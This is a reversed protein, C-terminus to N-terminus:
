ATNFTYKCDVILVTTGDKVWNKGCIHSWLQGSDAGAGGDIFNGFETFTGNVETETYFATLYAINSASTGSATDNRYDETELTTDGAAATCSGTGLVMKTVEGTYTFTGVLREAVVAFGANCIVNPNYDLWKLKGLIYFEKLLWRKGTVKVLFRIFQNFKQAFFGLTSQDYAKATIEGKVGIKEGLKKIIKSNKTQCVKKNLM